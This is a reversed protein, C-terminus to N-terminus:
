GYVCYGSTLVWEENLISGGCFVYKDIYLAVQWPFEHPSAVEGGVIKSRPYIPGCNEVAEIYNNLNSNVVIQLNNQNTGLM